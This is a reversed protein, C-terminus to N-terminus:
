YQKVTSTNTSNNAVKNAQSRKLSQIQSMASVCFARMRADPKLSLCANYEAASRDYERLQFLTNALQYHSAICTPDDQVAKLFFAKAMPFKGQKYHSCGIAFAENAFSPLCSTILIGLAALLPMTARSTTISFINLIFNLM